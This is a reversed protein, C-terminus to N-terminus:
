SLIYSPLLATVDIERAKEYFKKNETVWETSGLAWCVEWNWNDISLSYGWDKVGEWSFSKEILLYILSLAM